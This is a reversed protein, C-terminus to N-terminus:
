IVDLLNSNATEVAELINESNGSTTIAIFVDGQEGFAEIQRSFMHLMGFDNAIATLVSTDTTLALAPIGRRNKKLRVVLEAAFHQADAASGGNGAILVKHGNNICDVILKSWKMIRAHVEPTNYKQFMSIHNNFM